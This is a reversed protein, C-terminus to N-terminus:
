EILQSWDGSRPNDEASIWKNALVLQLSLLLLAAALGVGSLIKILGDETEEDEEDAVM